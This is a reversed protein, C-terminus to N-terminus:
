SNVSKITKPAKEDEGRGGIYRQTSCVSRAIAFALPHGKNFHKSPFGCFFVSKEPPAERVGVFTM